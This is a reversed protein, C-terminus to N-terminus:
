FTNHSHKSETYYQNISEKMKKDNACAIEEIAGVEGDGTEISHNITEALLGVPSVLADCYLAELAITSIDKLASHFTCKKEDKNQCFKNDYSQEIQARQEYVCHFFIKSIEDRDIDKTSKMMEDRIKQADDDASFPNAPKLTPDDIFEGSLRSTFTEYGEDEDPYAKAICFLDRESRTLVIRNIKDIHINVSDDALSNYARREREDTFAHFVARQIGNDGQRYKQFIVKLDPECYKDLLEILKNIFDMKHDKADIARLVQAEKDADEPTIKKDQCLGKWCYKQMVDQYPNDEARFTALHSEVNMQYTAQYYKDIRDKMLNDNGCVVEEIDGKEGKGSKISKYITDALIGEPPQLSMTYLSDLGYGSKQQLIGLLTLASGTSHEKNFCEEIKKREDFTRHFMIHATKKDDASAIAEADVCNSFDKTPKLTPDNILEGQTFLFQLLYMTLSLHLM